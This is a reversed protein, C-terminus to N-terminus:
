TCLSFVRVPTQQMENTTKLNVDAGRQILYNLVLTNGATNNMCATHIASYGDANTMDIDAGLDLLLKVSEVNGDIAAQTLPTYYAIANVDAGIHILMRLLKQGHPMEAAGVLDDDPITLKFSGIKDITEHDLMEAVLHLACLPITRRELANHMPTYGFHNTELFLNQFQKHDLNDRLFGMVVDFASPNDQSGSPSSYACCLHVINQGGLRELPLCFSGCFQEILKRARSPKNTELCDIMEDQISLPLYIEDSSVCLARETSLLNDILQKLTINPYLTRNDLQMNTTPDTANIQLWEQIAEYEYTHGLATTVPNTMIKTTIPCIFQKPVHIAKDNLTFTEM